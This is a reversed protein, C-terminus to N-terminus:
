KRKMLMPFSLAVWHMERGREESRLCLWFVSVLGKERDPLQDRSRLPKGALRIWTGPYM